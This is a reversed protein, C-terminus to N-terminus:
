KMNEPFFMTFALYIFVFVSLIIVITNEINM